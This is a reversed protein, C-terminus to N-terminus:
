RLDLVDSRMQQNFDVRIDLTRDILQASRGKISLDGPAVINGQVELDGLDFHEYKKYQYSVPAEKPSKNKEAAVAIQMGLLLILLTKM